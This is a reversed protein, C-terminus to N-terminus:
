GVRVSRAAALVGDTSLILKASLPHRKAHALRKRGDATLTLVVVGSGGRAFAFSGRALVVTVHSGSRHGKSRRLAVQVALELSGRCPADGCEVKVSATGNSILIKSTLTAVVKLAGGVPGAPGAPGASGSAPQQTPGGPATTSAFGPPAPIAVGASSASKEGASSSATVQCTLTHGQDLGQVQYSTGTAGAIPVGDRLWQDSLTPTPIGTWLGNSCLLTGGVLATGSVIPLTTDAPPSSRRVLAANVGRTVAGAAVSVTQAESLLSRGEYYQIVYSSGNNFGVEYEGPALGRIVYEGEADTETCEGIEFGAPAGSGTFVCVLAGEIAADTTADTVEGAIQGGEHLEADIGSAAGGSALPVLTAKSFSTQGNYYQTVYDLARSPPSYFEVLYEGAPLGPMVYEGHSGTTACEAFLHEGEFDYACVEIGEIPDSTLADKVEGAITGGEVALAQPAFVLAVSIVALLCLARAARAAKALAAGGRPKGAFGTAM